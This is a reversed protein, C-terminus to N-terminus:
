KSAIATARLGIDPVPNPYNAAAAVRSYTLLHQRDLPALSPNAYYGHRYLVTLGPRNVRVRIQRYRADSRQNSPYYGLIYGFRTTQDVDDMDGAADPLQNALFRGGTLDALTRAP